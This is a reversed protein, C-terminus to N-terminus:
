RESLPVSTKFRLLVNVAAQVGLMIAVLDPNSTVFDAKLLVGLVWLVGTAVNFQITNSKVAGQLLKLM